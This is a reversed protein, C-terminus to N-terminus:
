RVNELWREPGEPFYRATARATRDCRNCLPVTADTPVERGCISCDAPEVPTWEDDDCDILALWGGGLCERCRETIAEEPSGWSAPVIGVIASGTGDCSECERPPEEFEDLAFYGREPDDTAVWQNPLQRDEVPTLYRDPCATM